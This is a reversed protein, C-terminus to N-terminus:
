SVEADGWGYLTGTGYCASLEKVSLTLVRPHDLDVAIPVTATEDVTRELLRRGDQFLEFLQQCNSDRYVEVGLTATFRRATSPVEFDATGHSGFLVSQPYDRGGSHILGASVEPTGDTAV